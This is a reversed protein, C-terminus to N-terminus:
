RQRIRRFSGSEDFVIECCRQQAHGEEERSDPGTGAVLHICSKARGSKEQEDGECTSAGHGAFSYAREDAVREGAYSSWSLEEHSQTWAHQPHWHLSGGQHVLYAPHASEPGHSRARDSSYATRPRACNATRVSQGEAGRARALNRMAGTFSRAWKKVGEEAKDVYDRM